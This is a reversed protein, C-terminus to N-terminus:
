RDQGDHVRPAQEELGCHRLLWARSFLSVTGEVPLVQKDVDTIRGRINGMEPSETVDAAHAALATLEM